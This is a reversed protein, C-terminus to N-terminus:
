SMGSFTIMSSLCCNLALVKSLLPGYEADYGFYHFLLILLSLVCFVNDHVFDKWIKWPTICWCLSSLIIWYEFLVRVCSSVKFLSLTALPSTSSILRQLCLVLFCYSLLVRTPVCVTWMWGTLCWPWHYFTVPMGITHWNNSDITGIVTTPQNSQCHPYAPSTNRRLEMSIHM